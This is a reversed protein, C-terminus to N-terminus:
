RRNSSSSIHSNYPNRNGMTNDERRTDEKFISIQEGLEKIRLEKNKIEEYLQVREEEKIKVQEFLQTEM